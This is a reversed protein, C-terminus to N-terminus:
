LEGERDAHWAEVESVRYLRRRGRLRSPMGASQWNEITRQTCRYHQALEAKTLYPEWDTRRPLQIVPALSDSM